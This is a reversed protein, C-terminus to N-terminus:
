APTASASGTSRSSFPNDYVFHGQTEETLPLSIEFRQNIGAVDRYWERFSDASDIGGTRVGGHAFQPKHEADLMNRVLGTVLETNDAEFDPHTVDFDRVVAAIASCSQGADRRVVNGADVGPPGSYTGADIGQTGGADRGGFSAGPNQSSCGPTCALSVLLSLWGAYTKKM